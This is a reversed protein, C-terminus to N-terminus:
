PVSSKTDSSGPKTLTLSEQLLKLTSRFEDSPEGSKQPSDQLVLIRWLGSEAPLAIFQQHIQETGFSVTIASGTLEQVALTMRVPKVDPNDVGLTQATSIALTETGVEETFAFVMIVVNNGDMTWIRADPDTIDAEFGYTVPYNFALGAYPFRRTSAVDLTLRPNVYAGLLEQTKGPSLSVTENNIKLTYAIPPEASEDEACSVESGVLGSLSLLCVAVRISGRM